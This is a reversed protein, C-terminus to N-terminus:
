KLANWMNPQYILHMLRGSVGTHGDPPGMELSQTHSVQMQHHAWVDLETDLWFTLQQGVPVLATLQHLFQLPRNDFSRAYFLSSTWAPPIWAQAGPSPLEGYFALM